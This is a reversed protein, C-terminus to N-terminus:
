EYNMVRQVIEEPSIRNLCDYSGYRCPKNGFVSCPRCPLDVQVADKADQGYGYFGAYPHTAGWISVVPTNVLSALHMNASDMSLMVNLDNILLLEEPFSLYGAKSEVREYKEAWSQLLASEDKGGFLFIRVDPKENLRRVIEEMKDLPYIKGAHKAFPAIGILTEENNRKAPFLSTFAPTADYGLNEFVQRYRVVSPTLPVRKKNNARTLSRKEKKGKDIVAVKKGKLKFYCDIEISRLVFHLDAVQDIGERGLERLLRIMGRAGRHKGHTHVPFIELNHPKNVFLPQLPKKTLLIFRDNPYRNAVSYLVPVTMVVDGLASLRIILTCAM